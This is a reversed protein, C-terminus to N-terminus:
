GPFVHSLERNVAQGCIKIEERFNRRLVVGTAVIRQSERTCAELIPLKAEWASVPVAALKEHHTASSLSGGPRIAIDILM